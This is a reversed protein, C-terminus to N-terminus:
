VVSKRDEGAYRTTWVSHAIIAVRPAELRDDDPAFTRGLLAQGGVMQLADAAIFSGMYRAAPIGEDSVNTTFDFSVVLSSFSRAADRWDRADAYSVGLPRNRADVMRLSVLRDPTALPLPRLVISNLFTFATTNAGIGLALAIIAALTFRRDKLLVRTAFRIDLGLDQLWPSIWIDRARNRNLADNGLARGAATKAAAPPLGSRTLDDEALARHSAIEAALEDDHRRFRLLYLVRRIFQM